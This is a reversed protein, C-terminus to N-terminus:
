AWKRPKEVATATLTDWRPFGVTYNLWLGFGIVRRKFIRCHGCAPIPHSAAHTNYPWNILIDKTLLGGRLAGNWAAACPALLACAVLAAHAVGRPAQWLLRSRLHCLWQLGHNQGLSQTWMLTHHGEPKLAQVYTVLHLPVAPLAPLVGPMAPKSCIHCVLSEFELIRM